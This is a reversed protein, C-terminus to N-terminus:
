ALLNVENEVENKSMKTDSIEMDDIMSISKKLKKDQHHNNNQNKSNDGNFNSMFNFTSNTTNNPKMEISINNIKLGLDKLERNIVMLNKKISNFLEEREVTIVVDSIDSNKVLNITVEGLEKPKVKLTLENVGNNKMHRITQTIDTEVFSQRISEPAMSTKITDNINVKFSSSDPNILNTVDINSDSDLIEMLISMDKDNINSTEVQINSTRRNILFDSFKNIEEQTQNSLNNRDVFEVDKIDFAEDIKITDNAKENFIDLVDSKKSNLIKYTDVKLHNEKQTSKIISEVEKFIEIYDANKDSMDVKSINEFERIIEEFAFDVNNVEEINQINVKIGETKIDNIEVKTDNISNINNKINENKSQLEDENFNNVNKLIDSVLPVSLVGDQLELMGLIDQELLNKESILENEINVFEISDIKLSKDNNMLNVTLYLNVINILDERTYDDDLKEELNEILEEKDEINIEIKETFSKCIDSNNKATDKDVLPEKKTMINEFESEKNLNSVKSSSSFLSGNQSKVENLNIMMAFNMM